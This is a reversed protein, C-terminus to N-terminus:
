GRQTRETAAGAFRVRRARRIAPLPSNEKRRRAKAAAISVGLIANAGLRSKNPTGDLAILEEDLTKQHSPDMGKGNGPYTENRQSGGELSRQRTARRTETGFNLRRTNERQLEPLIKAVGMAGSELLVSVQITPNGRSDLIEMADVSKIKSM